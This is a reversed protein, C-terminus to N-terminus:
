VSNFGRGDNSTMPDEIFQEASRGWWGGLFDGGENRIKIAGGGNAVLQCFVASIRGADFTM